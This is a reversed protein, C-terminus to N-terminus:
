QRSCEIGANDVTTSAENPVLEYLKKAKVEKIDYGLEAALNNSYIFRGEKDVAAVFSPINDIYGVLTNAINNISQM